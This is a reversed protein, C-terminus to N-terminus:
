ERGLTKALELAEDRTTIRSELQADELASLIQGFKPGPEFGAAILDDGTLLPPPKLQEPPMDALKRHLIEWTELKGNSNM